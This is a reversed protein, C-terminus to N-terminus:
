ARPSGPAKARVVEVSCPAQAAVATSVSGMLFRQFGRLGKAGVFICDAKWRKAEAVLVRSPKGDKVLSSVALGTARLKDSAAKNIRATLDLDRGSADKLWTASAPDPSGFAVSMAMVNDKATVVRIASGKPWVRAAVSSLAVEADPSGDFGVIVRVPSGKKRRSSRAVRVSCPANAVVRQSVSGLLLGRIASHGHFGVVVLEADWDKARDVIEWAPSSASAVARVKWDPHDAQLIRRAGDALSRAQQVAAEAEARAKTVAAALWAPTPSAPAETEPPLFVDAVSLVLAELDEPLGARRLDALAATGCSSGDYAVLLKMRKNMVVLLPERRATLYLRAAFDEERSTLHAIPM